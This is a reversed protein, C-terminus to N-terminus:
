TSGWSSQDPHPVYTHAYPEWQMDYRGGGAPAFGVYGSISKCTRKEVLQAYLNDPTDLGPIGRKLIGSRIFTSSARTSCNGGLIHFAGPKKKLEDWHQDFAKAEASTVDVILVTSIVRATQAMKLDVYFPRKRQFAGYDYVIGEMSMGIRNSSDGDGEGFFGIPAGNSLICDAHQAMKGPAHAPGLKGRVILGIKDGSTFSMRQVTAM